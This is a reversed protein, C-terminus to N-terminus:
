LRGLVHSQDVVALDVEVNKRVSPEKFRQALDTRNGKKGIHKDFAPLNYQYNTLKVHAPVESRHHVLFNRRRLLNRYPRLKAPFVYAMPFNGGRILRAIKQSDVKDNKTKGGHIVKM